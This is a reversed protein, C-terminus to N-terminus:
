RKRLQAVTVPRPKITAANVDDRRARVQGAKVEAGSRNTVSESANRTFLGM